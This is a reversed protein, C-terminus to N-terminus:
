ADTQLMKLTWRWRQDASLGRVNRAAAIFVHRAATTAALFEHTEVKDREENSL